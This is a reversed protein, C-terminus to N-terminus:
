INRLDVDSVIKYSDRLQGGQEPSLVSGDSLLKFQSLTPTNSKFIEVQEEIIDAFIAFLAAKNPVRTILDLFKAKASSMDATGKKLFKFVSSGAKFGVKGYSNRYKLERKDAAVKAKAKARSIADTRKLGKSILAAKIKAFEDKKVKNVDDREARTLRTRGSEANGLLPNSIVGKRKPTTKFNGLNKLPNAAFRGRADRIQPLKAENLWARFREVVESTFTAKIQAVSKATIQFGAAPGVIEKSITIPVVRGVTFFLRKGGKARISKRGTDVTRFYFFPQGSSSKTSATNVLQMSATQGKIFNLQESKILNSLEKFFVTWEETNSVISYKIAKRNM